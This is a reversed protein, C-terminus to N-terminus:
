HHWIKFNYVIQHAHLPKESRNENTNGQDSTFNLM